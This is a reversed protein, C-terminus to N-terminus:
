YTTIKLGCHYQTTLHDLTTIVLGCHHTHFQITLHDITTSGLGCHAGGGVAGRYSHGFTNRDVQVFYIRLHVIVLM